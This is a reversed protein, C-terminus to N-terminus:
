LGTSNASAFAIDPLLDSPKIGVATALAFLTHLPIHQKGLEINTISTRSLGVRDALQKQTIKSEPRERAERLLRGFEQYFREVRRVNYCFYWPTDIVSVDRALFGLGINAASVKGTPPM